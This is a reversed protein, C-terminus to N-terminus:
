RNKRGSMLHKKQINEGITRLFAPTVELDNEWKCCFFGDERLPYFSFDCFEFDVCEVELQNKATRSVFHQYDSVLQSAKSSLRDISDNLSFRANRFTDFLIQDGISVM